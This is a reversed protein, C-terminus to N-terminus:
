KNHKRKNLINKLIQNKFHMSSLNISTKPLHMKRPRFQYLTQSQQQNKNEQKENNINNNTSIQTDIESVNKSNINNNTIDMHTISTKSKSNNLNTENANIGNKSNNIKDIKINFPIKSSFNKNRYSYPINNFICNRKSSTNINNIIVNQFLKIENLIKNKLNNNNSKHFTINIDDELEKNNEKNTKYEDNIYKYEKIREKIDENEKKNKLISLHSSNNKNNEINNKRNFYNHINICSNVNNQAKLKNTRAFGLINRIPRLYTSLEEIQITKSEAKLTYYKMAQKFLSNDYKPIKSININIKKINNTNQKLVIKKNNTQKENYGMLLSIKSGGIKETTKSKRFNNCDNQMGKLVSNNNINNNINKLNNNVILESIKTNDKDRLSNILSLKELNKNSNAHSNIKNIINEKQNSILINNSIMKKTRIKSTLFQRLNTKM